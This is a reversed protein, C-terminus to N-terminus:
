GHHVGKRQQASTINGRAVTSQLKRALMERARQFQVDDSERWSYDLVVSHEGGEVVAWAEVLAPSTNRARIIRTKIM